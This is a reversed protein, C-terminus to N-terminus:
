NMIRESEGHDM